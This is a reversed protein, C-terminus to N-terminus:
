RTSEEITRLERELTANHPWRNELTPETTFGLQACASRIEPANDSKCLVCPATAYKGLFSLMARVIGDSSRGALPFSRLYGTADDQHCLAVSEKSTATKHIIIFDAAIREGFSEVEALVDGGQVHRTRRTRKKLMKGRSCIDCFPNKPIHTLRHKLSQAEAMLRQTASVSEEDGEDDADSAIGGPEAPM